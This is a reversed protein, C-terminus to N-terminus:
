SAISNLRLDDRWLPGGKGFPTHGLGHGAAIPCVRHHRFCEGRTRKVDSFLYGGAHSPPRTLAVVPCICHLLCRRDFDDRYPRSNGRTGRVSGYM